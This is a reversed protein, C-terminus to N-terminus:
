KILVSDRTVLRVGDIEKGQKIYDKCASKSVEYKVSYLEEPLSSVVIDDDVEVAESSRLSVKFLGAEIKREGTLTMAGKIAEKLRDRLNESSKRRRSLRQEEAKLGDIQANLNAILKCYSEVKCSLAERGEALAQEQEATIEGGNDIIEDILEQLEAALQYIYMIKNTKHPPPKAAM